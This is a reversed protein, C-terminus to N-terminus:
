INDAFLAIAFALLALGLFWRAIKQKKGDNLFRRVAGAFCAMSAQFITNIVILTVGLIVFQLGLSGLEADAFNPMLGVFLLIVKPNLLNTLMAQRFPAARASSTNGGEELALPSRMIGFGLWALYVSGAFAIARLIQENAAVILSLGSVVLAIHVVLGCQVGFVAWLGGRRGGGACHRLIVMTDPGPAVVLAFSVIGFQITNELM